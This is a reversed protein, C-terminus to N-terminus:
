GSSPKAASPRADPRAPDSRLPFYTGNHDAVGGRVPLLLLPQGGTGALQDRISLGGAGVRSRLGDQGCDVSTTGQHHIFSAAPRPSRGLDGCCMRRPRASLARLLLWILLVSSVVFGTASPVLRSEAAAPMRLLIGGARSSRRSATLRIPTSMLYVKEHGLAVCRSRM